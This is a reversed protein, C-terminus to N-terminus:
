RGVIRWGDDYKKMDITGRLRGIVRGSGTTVFRYSPDFMYLEVLWPPGTYALSYEVTSVNLAPTESIGTIVINTARIPVRLEIVVDGGSSHKEGSVSYYGTMKKFSHYADDRETMEKCKAKAPDCPDKTWDPWYKALYLGAASGTLHITSTTDNALSAAIITAAQPRSLAQGNGGVAGVVLIIAILTLARSM